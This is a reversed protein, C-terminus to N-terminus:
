WVLSQGVRRGQVTATVVYMGRPLGTLRLVAVNGAGPDEVRAILRGQLDRLGVNRLPREGSPFGVTLEDGARVLALADGDLELELVATGTSDGGGGGTGTTDTGGGTGTTDTGGGTGTTDAGGGTGTTDEGSGPIAFTLTSVSFGPLEISFSNTRATDVEAELSVAARTSDTVLHRALTTAYSAGGAMERLDINVTRPGSYNGVHVVVTDGGERRLAAVRLGLDITTGLDYTLRKAGRQQSATLQRFAAHRLPAELEGSGVALLGTEDSLDAVAIKDYAYSQVGANIATTFTAALSLAGRHERTFTPYNSLDDGRNALAQTTLVPRHGATNRISQITSASSAGNVQQIGVATVNLWAANLSGRMYNLYEASVVPNSGNPALVEPMPVGSPNRDPDELRARLSDVALHYLRAVDIRPDEDVGYRHVGQADADRDAATVLSIMSVPIGAEAYTTLVAQYWDAVEGYIGPRRTDLRQADSGDIMTDARLSAPFHELGLVVATGPAAARIANVYGTRRAYYDPRASPHGSPCDYLYGLDLDGAGRAFVETRVAPDLGDLLTLDSPLAVGAGLWSQQYDAVRVEITQQAALPAAATSLALAIAAPAAARLLTTHPM